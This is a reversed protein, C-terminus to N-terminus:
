EHNLIALDGPRLIGTHPRNDQRQIPVASCEYKKDCVIHIEYGKPEPPTLHKMAIVVNLAELLTIHMGLYPKPYPVRYYEAESWAGGMQLCSDCEIKWYPRETPILHVGNSKEAYRRFWNLDKRTDESIPIPNVYRTRRLLALVRALFRRAPPLCTAIHFLKGTLRQIQKTSITAMKDVEEIEKIVEQLKEAPIKVTMDVTNIEYGLWVICTTPRVTKDPALKLGLQETLQEFMQLNKEAEQATGSVSGYDDIYALVDVDNQKMIHAIAQSVRQMCTSSSRCGFSPSKDHYYKDRHCIGALVWDIPDVQLQRYARELDAGRLFCGSGTVKVKNLLDTITPLKYKLYEGQFMNKLIGDNVSNYEPYSLDVVIRRKDSRKKEVTLLPSVQSWPTFPPNDFPGLLTGHELETKIFEDIHTPYDLAPPHNKNAPTPPRDGTYSSPWGFELFQTLGADEYGILKQRWLPLNFGSKLPIQAAMYNPVTTDLIQMYTDMEEPYKDRAEQTPHPWFSQRIPAYELPTLQQADIKLDYGPAAAPPRTPYHPAGLQAGGENPADQQKSVGVGMQDPTGTVDCRQSLDPQTPTKSAADGTEDMTSFSVM